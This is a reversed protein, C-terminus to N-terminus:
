SSPPRLTKFVHPTSFSFMFNKSLQHCLYGHAACTHHMESHIGSLLSDWEDGLHAWVGKAILLKLGSGFLDRACGLYVNHLWDYVVTEVRFGEISMYPSLNGSEKAIYGQHDLRTRHWAATMSFNRGSMSPHTGRGNSALCTDCLRLDLFVILSFGWTDCLGLNQCIQEENFDKRNGNKKRNSTLAVCFLHTNMFTKFSSLLNPQIHEENALYRESRKLFDRLEGM